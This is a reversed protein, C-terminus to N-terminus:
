SKIKQLRLSHGRMVRRISDRSGKDPWNTGANKGFSMVMCKSANLKLFWEQTWEQLANVGRQLVTKGSDQTIHRFLKDDVFLYIESYPICCEILDNIFLMFYTRCYQRPTYWKYCWEVVHKWTASDISSCLRQRHILVPLDQRHEDMSLAARDISAQALLLDMSPVACDISLASRDIASSMYVADYLRHLKKLFKNNNVLGVNISVQYAYYLPVFLLFIYIFIYM